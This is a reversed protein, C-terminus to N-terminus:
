TKEKWEWIKWHINDESDVEYTVPFSSGDLSSWESTSSRFNIIGHLKVESSGVTGKGFASATYTAIEGSKSTIVGIGEGSIKDPFRWVNWDTGIHEADTGLLRGTAQDTSETKMGNELIEVIRMGITKGRFEGIPKGSM